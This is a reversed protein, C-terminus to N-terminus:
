LFLKTFLRFMLENSYTSQPDQTFTNKFLIEHITELSNSESSTSDGATISATSAPDLDQM